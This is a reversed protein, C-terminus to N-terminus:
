NKKVEILWNLLEKLRRAETRGYHGAYWSFLIFIEPLLVVSKETKAWRNCWVTESAEKEQIYKALACHHCSSGLIVKDDPLADLWAKFQVLNLYPKYQIEVM